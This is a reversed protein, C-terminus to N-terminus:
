GGVNMKGREIFKQDHVHINVPLVQRWFKRMNSNLVRGCLPREIGDFDDVDDAIKHRDWTSGMSHSIM